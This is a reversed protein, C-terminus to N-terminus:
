ILLTGIFEGTPKKKSVLKHRCSMLIHSNWNYIESIPLCPCSVLQRLKCWDPTLDPKEFEEKCFATIFLWTTKDSTPPQYNRGHVYILFRSSGYIMSTDLPLSCTTLGCLGQSLISLHGTFSSVHVRKVFKMYSCGSSGSSTFKWLKCLNTHVSYLLGIFIENKFNFFYLPVVAPLLLVSDSFISLIILSQSSTFVPCNLNWFIRLSGVEVGVYVSQEIGNVIAM